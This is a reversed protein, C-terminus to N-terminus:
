HRKGLGPAGGSVVSQFKYDAKARGSSPLYTSDIDKACSKCMTPPKDWDSRIKFASRCRWCSKNLWVPLLPLPSPKPKNKKRQKKAKKDAELKEFRRNIESLSKLEQRKPDDVVEVRDVTSAKRKRKGKRKRSSAFTETPAGAILKMKVRQRGPPVDSCLAQRLEEVLEILVPDKLEPESDLEMGEKLKRLVELNKADM